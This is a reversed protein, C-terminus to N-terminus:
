RKLCGSQNWGCCIVFGADVTHHPVKLLYIIEDRTLLHGDLVRSVIERVRLSVQMNEGGEQIQTM